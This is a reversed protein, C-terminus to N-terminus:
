YIYDGLHGVKVTPDCYIQLNQERAKNCFWMDSGTKMDGNEDYEYFFWPHPIRGFVHMSILMFGTGVAVCEYLEDKRDFIKDGKADHLKVTSTLPLKRLNTEVGVIDRNHAMLKEVADADFVMDSDVFLLHTCDSKQAQKVINIRSQHVNCGEWAIIFTNEPDRKVLGMVSFLTKTRVQGTTAIGIALKFNM